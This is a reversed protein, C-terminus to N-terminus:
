YPNHINLETPGRALVAGFKYHHDAVFHRSACMTSYTSATLASCRIIRRQRRDTLDRLASEASGPEARMVGSQDTCQQYVDVQELIEVIM